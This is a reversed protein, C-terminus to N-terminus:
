AATLVIGTLAAAVGAVQAGSLRKVEYCASSGLALAIALL